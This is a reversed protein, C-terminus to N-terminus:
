LELIRWSMANLPLKIFKRRVRSMIYDPKGLM